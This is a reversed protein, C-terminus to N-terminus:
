PKKIIKIKLHWVFAQKCYNETGSVSTYVIFSASCVNGARLLSIASQQTQNCRNNIFQM